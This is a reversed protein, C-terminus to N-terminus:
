KYLPIRYGNTNGSVQVSIWAAVNTTDAPAANTGAFSIQNTTGGLVISGNTRLTFVSSTETHVAIFAAQSNTSGVIRIAPNFNDPVIKLGPVTQLQALCAIPLILLLVSIFLKKM